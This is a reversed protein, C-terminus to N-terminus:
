SLFSIHGGFRCWEGDGEPVREWGVLFGFGNGLAVAEHANKAADPKRFSEGYSM